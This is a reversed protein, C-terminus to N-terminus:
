FFFVSIDCLSLGVHRLVYEKAFGGKAGSGSKKKPKKGGHEGSDDDSEVVAASKKKKKPSSNTVVRAASRRPARGNIEDSIQRALELDSMLKPNGKKAKKSPPKRGEEDEDDEDGERSNRQRRSHKKRQSADQEEKWEGEDVDGGEHVGDFVRGILKNIEERYEKLVKATLSPAADLLRLRVSKASITKLDTEPARLITRIYPELSEVDFAM